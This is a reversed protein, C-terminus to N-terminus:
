YAKIQSAYTAWNTAAIWEDYLAAPVRIECDAPIDNFATTASLTPVATCDAFDYYVMSNCKVFAYGEISTVGSPFKLSQLSYCNGFTHSAISTTDEPVNVERLSFCQSCAQGGLAVNDGIKLRMLAAKYAYNRVDQANRHLMIYGGYNASSAGTLTFRGETTLRIVYNGAVAYNHNPTYMIGGPNAEVLVDPETGDGWDVTVPDNSSVGLMPSTRGEALTIYLYTAGDDPVEPWGGGGSGGSGLLTAMILDKGVM